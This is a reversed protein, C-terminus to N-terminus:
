NGKKILLVSATCSANNCTGNLTFQPAVSSTTWTVDSTIASPDSFVLEALVYDQTIVANTVTAFNGTIASCAIGTLYIAQNNIKEDLDDLDDQISQNNDTQISSATLTVNGTGDPSVSNVSSVAGTGDIGYRAVSYSIVPSGTNFNLITRTWLFSGAVPNPITPTWNASPIVTGSDGIQYSISSSILETADGQDGKEGKIQFWTYSEKTTPATSETGSYVGMWNDADVGIDSDSPPLPPTGSCSSAYRIHVYAQQGTDGYVGIVAKVTEITGGSGMSFSFYSWLYKNTPTPTQQSTSWGSVPVVSGSDSVAFYQTVATVGNGNTVTFTTTTNDAFLITYTDVLGSTGTKGISVIAGHANYMEAMATYFAAGTLKYAAGGQMVAFFTNNSNVSGPAFELDTITKDAM